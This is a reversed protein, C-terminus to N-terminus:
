QGYIQVREANVNEVFWPTRELTSKQELTGTTVLDISKELTDRLDDFLGGIVWGKVKSDTIDVLVDVDSEDTAENRAYSGFVYVARLQYREAIPSVKKRLEDMSYIMDAGEKLIM